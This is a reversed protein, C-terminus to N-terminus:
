NGYYNKIKHYEEIEKKNNKEAKPSVGSWFNTNDKILQIQNPLKEIRKGLQFHNNFKYNWIVTHLKNDIADYVVPFSQIPEKSLNEVFDDGNSTSCTFYNDGVKYIYCFYNTKGNDIRYYHAVTISGQKTLKDCWESRRMFVIISIIMLLGFIATFEKITKENKM